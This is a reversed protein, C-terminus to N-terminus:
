DKDPSVMAQANYALTIGQRTKMMRADQDTLNIQKRGSDALTEMAQRVRERLAEKDALEEPLNAPATDEGAENQAELDDVARDLREWLRRLEEGNYTRDKAANAGVKTGDVAQVALDVLNMRVATRVTRKFLDRM